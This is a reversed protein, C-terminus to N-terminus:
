ISDTLGQAQRAKSMESSEFATSIARFFAISANNTDQREKKYNLNSSHKVIVINKSPNVYIFQNYVGIAIFEQEDGEPIWWQFGYGLNSNSYPNNEGPLLHAADPTISKYVWDAPVVQEELMKGNHLYLLGFRAYDRLTANFGGFAAEMGQKDEIWYAQHAAGIKRWVRTEFYESLDMGTSNRVLMGLVQTDVSVYKHYKGAPRESRITKAFRDLSLGLAFYRGLRNIDSNFDQYDETFGAGSSMQLIDKIRVNQYASGFLEPVYKTIEDEESSIFGEDIAIGVLASIM